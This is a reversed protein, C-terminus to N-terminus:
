TGNSSMLQTQLGRDGFLGGRDQDLRDLALAADARAVFSNRCSSRWSQSSIRGAASGRRPGSAADAPGALQKGMFPRADRRVDHSDGLADAATEREAGAKRGGLGGGAHDGARMARGIAAIRQGHGDAIGHEIDDQGIAEQLMDAIDRQDEALAEGRQLITEGIHDLFDAALAQHEADLGCTGDASRSCAIRAACRSPTGAPSLTM